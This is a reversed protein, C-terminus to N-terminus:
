GSLKWIGMETMVITVLQCYVHSLMEKKESHAPRSPSIGPRSFGSWNGALGSYTQLSDGAQTIRNYVKPELHPEGYVAAPTKLLWWMGKCALLCCQFLVPWERNVFLPLLQQSFTKPREVFKICSCVIFWENWFLLPTLNLNVAAMGVKVANLPWLDSAPFLFFFFSIVHNKCETAKLTVTTLRPSNRHAAQKYSHKQTVKM